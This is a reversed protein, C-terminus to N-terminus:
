SRLTRHMDIFRAEYARPDQGVLVTSLDRVAGAVANPVRTDSCEGWGTIGEDTEVKVYTWARWGGDVIFTELNTIKMIDELLSACDNTADEQLREVRECSCTYTGM